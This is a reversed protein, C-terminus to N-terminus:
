AAVEDEYQRQTAIQDFLVAGSLRFYRRPRPRSDGLLGLKTLRTKMAEASVNFLNAALALNQTKVWTSVVLRKPMLVQGAFENAILEIQNAQAEVNGSGLYAHLRDAAEFDLVHKFEHLLSFRQRQTPEARNLYMELQGTIANTTMGSEENLKHSPVLNVPVTTQNLLWALNIDLSSANAWRRLRSAQLRAVQLSEGYSLPRNPAIARLEAILTTIDHSHLTTM